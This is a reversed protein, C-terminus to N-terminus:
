DGTEGTPGTPSAAAGAFLTVTSGVEVEAGADPDQDAVKNGLPCLPNITVRETATVPNLGAQRIQNQANGFSLCTVEPVITTDAGTSVFVAVESEPPVEEGAAPETRIVDGEEVTDSAEDQRVPELELALLQAQAEEFTLGELPPVAVLEADAVVTLDVPTGEEVEELAPPDQEVVTGPEQDPHEEAPAQSIEGVEL